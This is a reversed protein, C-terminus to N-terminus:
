NTCHQESADLSTDLKFFLVHSTLMSITDSTDMFYCQGKTIAASFLSPADHFIGEGVSLSLIFNFFFFRRHVRLPNVYFSRQRLLIEGCGEWRYIIVPGQGLELDLNHTAFRTEDNDMMIILNPYEDTSLAHEIHTYLMSSFSDRWRGFQVMDRTKRKELREPLPSFISSQM